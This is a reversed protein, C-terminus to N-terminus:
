VVFGGLRARIMEIVVAFLGFRDVLCFLACKVLLYNIILRYKKCMRDVVFKVLVSDFRVIRFSNSSGSREKLYSLFVRFM